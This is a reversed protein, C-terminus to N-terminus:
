TKRQVKVFNGLAMVSMNQLGEHGVSTEIGENQDKVHSLHSGWWRDEM